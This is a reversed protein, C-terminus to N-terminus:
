NLYADGRAEAERDRIIAEKIADFYTDDVPITLVSVGEVKLADMAQVVQRWYNRMPTVMTEIDCDRGECPEAEHTNVVWELFRCTDRVLRPDVAIANINNNVM